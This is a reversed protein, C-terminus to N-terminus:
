RVPTYDKGTWLWPQGGVIVDRYGRHVQKAVTVDVETTELVKVWVSRAKNFVLTTCTGPTCTPESYIRIFLEGAGDGDLDLTAYDLRLPDASQRQLAAVRDKLGLTETVFAVEAETQVPAYAPMDTAWCDGASAVLCGLAAAWRTITSLEM